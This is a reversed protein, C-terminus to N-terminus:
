GRTDIVLDGAWGAPRPLELVVLHALGDVEVPVMVTTDGLSVQIHQMLFADLYRQYAEVVPHFESRDLYFGLSGRLSPLHSPMIRLAAAFADRAAPEVAWHGSLREIARGREYHNLYNLSDFQVLRAYTALARGRKGLAEESRGVLLLLRERQKDRAHRVSRAPFSRDLAALYAEARAPPGSHLLREGEALRRTWREDWQLVAAQLTHLLARRAAPLLLAGLLAAT